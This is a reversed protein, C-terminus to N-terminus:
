FRYTTFVFGSGDAHVFWQGHGEFSPQQQGFYTNLDKKLSHEPQWSLVHRNVSQQASCPRDSHSPQVPKVIVEQFGIFRQLLPHLAKYISEKFSFVLSLELPTKVWSELPHLIQQRLRTAREACMIEETDIGVGQLTEQKAMCAVALNNSHSISGVFGRPWRPSDRQPHTDPYMPLGDWELAYKTYLFQACARGTLYSRQRKAVAHQLRPPLILPKSLLPMVQELSNLPIFVCDM